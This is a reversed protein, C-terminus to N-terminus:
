SLQLMLVRVAAMVLEAVLAMARTLEALKEVRDFLIHGAIEVDM